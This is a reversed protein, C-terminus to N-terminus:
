PGAGTSRVVRWRNASTYAFPCVKATCFRECTARLCRSSIGGTATRSVCGSCRGSGCWPPMVRYWRTTSCPAEGRPPSTPRPPASSRTSAIRRRNRRRRNRNRNRKRPSWTGTATARRLRPPTRTSRPGNCCWVRGGNRRSRWRASRIRSCRTARDTALRMQPIASEPVVGVVKGRRPSISRGRTTTWATVRAAM